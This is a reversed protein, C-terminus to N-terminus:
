GNGNRSTGDLRAGDLETGDVLARYCDLYGQGVTQWSFCTQVTERAAAGLRRRLAPDDLLGCVADALQNPAYPPALLGNHGHKVVDLAGSVATTVVPKACAMAELLVTPLGEYHAPHVFLRARRYLRILRQRDSVHGLLTVHNQLRRRAIEARLEGAAPGDGAILFRFNPHRKIVLEACKLLDGLGKRPALRAVTLAFGQETDRGEDVHTPAPSFMETDVGNGLVHVQERRIGYAALEKAVSHAVATLADAGAFLRRELQISFPAQLKIAWGLASDASVAATDAQMPTHVTVLVPRRTKPLSVLPSHLHFVDVEPELRRVIREVFLGHLHVHVPYVPLFTARWVTMGELQERTTQGAQGRTIIQVQHGQRVLFRSLNWTYHGIGERPPIPTSAIMCIRM